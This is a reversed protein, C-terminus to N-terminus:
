LVVMRKVDSTKERIIVMQGVEGDMDVEVPHLLQVVLKVVDVMLRFLPPVMDVVMDM